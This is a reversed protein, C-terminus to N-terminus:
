AKDTEIENKNTLHIGTLRFISVANLSKLQNLNIMPLQGRPLETSILIPRSSDANGATKFATEGRRLM